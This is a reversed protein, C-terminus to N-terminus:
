SRGRRAHGRARHRRGLAVASQQDPLSRSGGAAVTSKINNVYVDVTSPVAASGSYSPLPLTVLDPRLAFNRQVQLGGLRIPRTWALTRGSITDGARYSM